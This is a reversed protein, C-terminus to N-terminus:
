YGALISQANVKDMDRSINRKRAWKLVIHIFKSEENVDPTAIIAM